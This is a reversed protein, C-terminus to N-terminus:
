LGLPEFRVAPNPVQRCPKGPEDVEWEAAAGVQADAAPEGGELRGQQEGGDGLLEVEREYWIMGDDKFRKHGKTRLVAHPHRQVFPVATVGAGPEARLRSARGSTALVALGFLVPRAVEGGVPRSPRPRRATRSGVKPALRGGFDEAVPQGPRYVRPGM